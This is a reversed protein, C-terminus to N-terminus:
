PNKGGPVEDIVGVPLRDGSGARAARRCQVDLVVQAVEFRGLPGPFTRVPLIAKNRGLTRDGLVGAM